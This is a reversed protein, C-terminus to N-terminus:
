AESATSRLSSSRLDGPLGGSYIDTANCVSCLRTPRSYLVGPHLISPSCPCCSLLSFAIISYSGRVTTHLTYMLFFIALRRKCERTDQKCTFM